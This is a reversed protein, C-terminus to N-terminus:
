ANRRLRKQEELIDVVTKESKGSAEGEILAQQLAAKEFRNKQILVQVLESVDSFHGAQVQENMWTIMEEPISVNITAM